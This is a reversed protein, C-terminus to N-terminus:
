QFNNNIDIDPSLNVCVGIAKSERAVVEGMKFALGPDDAAAVGMNDPFDTGDSLRMGLGSEFDASILLPIDALAQM